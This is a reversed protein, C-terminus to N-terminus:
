SPSEVPLTARVLFGGEPRPGAEFRGGCVNVRERMGVLGHGGGDGSLVPVGDNAVELELADPSWRLRVAATAGQSHKLANTLAEQVVRYANLDVGPALPRRDGEVALEVPLGATRARELLREIQDLGPQPELAAEDETERLVGLLRRMEALAERGTREVTELAEREREQEPRLVRRVAGAQVTMVSVSHAVVDHLERAIRAREETVARRAEQERRHELLVAREELRAAHETRRRLSLGAFWVLTGVANFWLWGSWGIHRYAMVAAGTAGYALLLLAVATRADTNAASSWVAFWAALFFVITNDTAHPIENVEVIAVLWVLVPVTVPWRRRFLLPATMGLAFLSAEWRPWDGARLWAELQGGAILLVVAADALAALGIRTARVRRRYGM